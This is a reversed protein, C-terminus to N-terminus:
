RSHCTETKCLPYQVPRSVQNPALFNWLSTEKMQQGLFFAKTNRACRTKPYEEHSQYWISPLCRRRASPSLYSVLGTAFTCLQGQEPMHMIVFPRTWNRLYPLFPHFQPRNMAWKLTFQPSIACNLTSPQNFSWEIGIDIYWDTPASLGPPM